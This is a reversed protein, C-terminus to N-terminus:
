HGIPISHQIDAISATDNIVINPKVHLHYLSFGARNGTYVLNNDHYFSVDHDKFIVKM